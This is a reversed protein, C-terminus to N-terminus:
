ILYTGDIPNLLFVRDKNLNGPSDYPFNDTLCRRTGAESSQTVDEYWGNFINVFWRKFQDKRRRTGPTAPWGSYQSYTIMHNTLCSEIGETIRDRFEEYGSHHRSCTGDIIGAQLLHHYDTTTTQPTTTIDSQTGPVQTTVEEDVCEWDFIVHGAHDFSNSRFYFTFTNSNVSFGDTDEIVDKLPEFTDPYEISEDGWTLGYYNLSDCGDGFCDCRPRTVHFGTSGFWGFRFSDSKCEYSDQVALSRYSVRIASCSEDAQIEHHCKIDNPYNELKLEGFNGYNATEFRGGKATIQDSCQRHYSSMLFGRTAMGREQKRKKANVALVPLILTFSRM